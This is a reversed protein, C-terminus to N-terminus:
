GSHGECRLHGGEGGQCCRRERRGKGHATNDTWVPLLGGRHGSRWEQGAPGLRSDFAGDAELVSVARPLSTSIRFLDPQTRLAAKRFCHRAMDPWASAIEPVAPVPVVWGLSDVAVSQRLDYKSQLILTESDDHFILLARQYPVGPPVKEPVFFKGDGRANAVLIGVVAALALGGATFRMKCGELQWERM